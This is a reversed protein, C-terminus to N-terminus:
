YLNLNTGDWYLSLLNTPASPTAAPLRVINSSSNLWISIPYTLSPKVMWWSGASAGSITMAIIATSPIIANSILILGGKNSNTLYYTQFGGGDGIGDLFALPFSVPGTPGTAGTGGMVGQLGTPGTAGSPGTPGTAGTPGSPGSSGQNGSDGSPGRNGVCLVTQNRSTWQSASLVSM